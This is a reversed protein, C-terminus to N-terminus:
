PPTTGEAPPELPEPPPMPIVGEESLSLVRLRRTVQRDAGVSSTGAVPATVLAARLGDVGGGAAVASTVLRGTDYGIAEIVGPVAGTRAKWATVFDVVAPDQSDADFADVLMSGEVYRQARRALDDNNWANLGMLLVGKPERHPRFRGVPFEEFALASALLATAQYKEPIFLADYDVVPPLTAKKPDGGHSEIDHRIRAFEGARAKFDKRGFAKAVATYDKQDPAYSQKFVVAGGRATVASEFAAAASEGFANQPHLIAFRQMARVGMAEDLLAAVQQDVSLYGRFVLDGASLGEASSSMTVMPVRLAQAAPACLTAEEKRMPGIVLSAGREIVGAELAAVCSAPDGKTDVVDLVVDPGAGAEMATRLATAPVGLDGTLPLLVLVRKPDTAVKAAARRAAYEAERYSSSGPHEAMFGSALGAAEDWRAARVAARLADLKASESTVPAAQEAGGVSAFRLDHRAEDGLLARAGAVWEAVRTAYAPEGEHQEALVLMREAELTAPASTADLLELTALTNGSGLGRRVDIVGIGVRAASSAPACVDDDRVAAFASRSALLDGERRLQEAHVLRKRAADMELAACTPGGGVGEGAAVLLAVAVLAGTM